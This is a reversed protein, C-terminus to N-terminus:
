GALVARRGLIVTDASPRPRTDWAPANSSAPVSRTVPSPSARAAPRARHRAGRATWSGPFIM